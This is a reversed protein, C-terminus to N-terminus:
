SWYFFILVASENTSVGVLDIMNSSCLWSYLMLWSSSILLRLAHTIGGCFRQLWFYFKRM